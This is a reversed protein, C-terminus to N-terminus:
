VEKLKIARVRKKQYKKGAYKEIAEKKTYAKINRIPAIMGVAKVQYIKLKKM